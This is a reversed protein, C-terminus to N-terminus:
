EDGEGEWDIYRSKIAAYDWIQPIQANLQTFQTYMRMLEYHTWKGRKLLWREKETFAGWMGHREYKFAYRACADRIPCEVCIRRLTLLAMGTEQLEGESMFFVETEMDRCNAKNYDLRKDNAM